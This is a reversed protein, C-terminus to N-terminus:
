AALPQTNEPEQPIEDLAYDLRAVPLVGEAHFADRCMTVVDLQSPAVKHRYWPRYRRLDLQELHETREIFWLTRAAAMVLRFSNAGVIRRWTRCQDQGLGYYAQGDRIDIEVAWRDRYSALITEVSLTLDTTFFAEVLARPKRQGQRKTHVTAKRRVVVVHVRRGPMVSHWLTVWSQVQAGAETPHARWGNRQRALTKPSGLRKGKLAPRGVRRKTSPNPPEYLAATIPLRAIIQVSEPLHRVFDKTAYGGDVIARIRRGPLSQAVFDVMARALQSRSRYPMKLTNALPEKLYLELGIPVTLCHGPWRSLPLRMVGLVFNLGRLTRYEQRASGASNRYRDLGEIHRGAKKKTFDDLEIVLPKDNPVWAAACRIIRAWLQQRVAYLSAGLFGYFCSFHKHATAGSLWLYATVTHRERALAWGYALLAFSQWSPTTFFPQFLNMVFRGFSSISFRDVAIDELLLPHNTVM